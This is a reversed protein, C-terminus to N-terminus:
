RSEASTPDAPVQNANRQWFGDDATVSIGCNGPLAGFAQKDVFGSKDLRRLVNLAAKQDATTTLEATLAKAGACCAAPPKGSGNALYNVCPKLDKVVDSASVAAHATTAGLLASATVLATAVLHKTIKV